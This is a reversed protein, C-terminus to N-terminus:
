RKNNAARSARSGENTYLVSSSASRPPANTIIEINLRGNHGAINDCGQLVECSM